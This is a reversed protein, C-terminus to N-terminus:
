CSEPTVFTVILLIKNLMYILIGLFYNLDFTMPVLKLNLNHLNLSSVTPM